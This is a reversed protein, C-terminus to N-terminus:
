AESCLVSVVMKDEVRLAGWSGSTYIQVANRKDPRVNAV